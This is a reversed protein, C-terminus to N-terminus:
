KIVWITLKYTRINDNKIASNITFGKSRKDCYYRLLRYIKQLSFIEQREVGNITEVLYIKM